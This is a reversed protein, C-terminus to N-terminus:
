GESEQHEGTGETVDTEHNSAPRSSTDSKQRARAPMGVALTDPAIDRTVVAGAGTRARDGVTVPAILLTDSGIFADDGISTRHKQKGDFNCTITGAGINVRSGVSSDGIYSFHGMHTGPGLTSNKVEAFNGLHVGQALVAGPRLHSFPGISVGEELVAQEMVSVIVQCNNGIRSDEVISNPGITCGTGIVTRGRLHTNPGIVTDNGIRVPADIYISAPDQMTVGALMHARRIRERLIQEAEALQLRNNIGLGEVGDPASYTEVPEGDEIAIELTDTLYYEGSVPNKQIRELAGWLWSAKFCYIGTNIERIQKQEPTANKEEVIGQVQGHEDRMMRGYGTPDPPFATMVTLTAGSKRHRDLLAELTESRTLPVDGYDVLVTDIDARQALLPAAAMVAHGTGLRQHQFAYELPLSVEAESGPLPLTRYCDGLSSQVQEARDGVVIVASSIALPAFANLVWNIMPMGALPHLVKHLNSRMRTGMGAALLVAAVSPTQAM